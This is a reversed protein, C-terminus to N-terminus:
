LTNRPRFPEALGSFLKRVIVFTLFTHDSLVLFYLRQCEKSVSCMKKKKKKNVCGMSEVAWGYSMEMSLRALISREHNDCRLSDLVTLSDEGPQLRIMFITEHSLKIDFSYGCNNTFECPTRFLHRM